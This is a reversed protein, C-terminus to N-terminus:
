SIYSCRDACPQCFLIAVAALVISIHKYLTTYYRMMAMLLNFLACRVYSCVEDSEDMDFDDELASLSTNRRQKAFRNLIMQPAFM